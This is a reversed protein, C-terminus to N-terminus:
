TRLFYFFTCITEQERPRMFIKVGEHINIIIENSKGRWNM